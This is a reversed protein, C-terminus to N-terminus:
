KGKQQVTIEREVMDICVKCDRVFDLGLVGHMDSFINNNFFDYSCIEMNHRTIGLATIEKVVFVHATLEGKATEFEVTRVSDKIEYGLIILAALDIITNSAGTDLALTYDDGDLECTVTVVLASEDEIEFGFTKM